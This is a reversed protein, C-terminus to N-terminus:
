ANPRTGCVHHAVGPAGDPGTVSTDYRYGPPKGACMPDDAVDTQLHKGTRDDIAKKMENVDTVHKVCGGIEAIYITNPVTCQHSGGNSHGGAFVPTAASVSAAAIAAIVLYKLM